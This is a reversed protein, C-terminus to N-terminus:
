LLLFLLCIETEMFLGGYLNLSAVIDEALLHRSKLICTYVSGCTM